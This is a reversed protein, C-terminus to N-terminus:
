LKSALLITTLTSAIIGFTSNFKDLFNNDSKEKKVKRNVTIVSNPMVLPNNFFGIKKTKGNPHIIYAKASEKERGGSLKIYHKARKNNNSWIFNSENQVAGLTTVIGKDSAIYIVDGTIFNMEDTKIKSLDYTLIKGERKVYSAKLNAYKTLGGTKSILDDFSSSRFELIVNQPLNVEGIVNINESKQFGIEKSVSIIDRDKLIFNHKPSESKGLMYGLDLELNYRRIIRETEINIEYRNVTIIQKDAGLTFGGALLILDEAFMEDTMSFTKANKVYGFISVKKDTNKTVDKNYLLVNDKPQLIVEKLKEPDTFDYNITYYNGTELSYRRLDIRTKLINRTFEPSKIGTSNFIFDYLSYNEKWGITKDTVGFGTLSIEKVGEVQTNSYITVTDRDLLNVNKSDLM